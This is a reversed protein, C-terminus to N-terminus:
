RTSCVCVRVLSLTTLCLLSKEQASVRGHDDLKQECEGTVLNWVRLAERSYSVVRLGDTFAYVSIVIQPLSSISLTSLSHSFIM